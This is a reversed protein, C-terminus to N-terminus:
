HLSPLLLHSSFALSFPFFCANSRALFFRFELAASEDSLLPSSMQFRSVGISVCVFFCLEGFLLFFRHTALM